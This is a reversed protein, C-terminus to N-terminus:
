PRPTRLDAAALHGKEETRRRVIDGEISVVVSGPWLPIWVLGFYGPLQDPWLPLMSTTVLNVVAEGGVASVQENITESFDVPAVPVLTYLLSWGRSRAEVRGLVELDEGAWVAGDADAIAGSLSIPVRADDFRVPVSAGACGLTLALAGIISAISGRRSSRSSRILAPIGSTPPRPSGM